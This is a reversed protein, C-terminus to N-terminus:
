GQHVGVDEHVTAQMLQIVMQIREERMGCKVLVAAWIAQKYTLNICKWLENIVNSGVTDGIANCLMKTIRSYKADRVPSEIPQLFIDNAISTGENHLRMSTQIHFPHFGPKGPSSASKSDSKKKQTTTEISMPNYPMSISQFPASNKPGLTSHSKNADGGNGPLVSVSAGFSEWLLPSIPSLGPAPPSAADKHTLHIRANRLKGLKFEPSPIPSSTM